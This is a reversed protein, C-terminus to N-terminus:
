DESKKKYQLGTSLASHEGKKGKETRETGETVETNFSKGQEKKERCSIRAV